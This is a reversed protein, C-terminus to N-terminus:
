IEGSAKKLNEMYKDTIKGPSELPCIYLFNSFHNETKYHM